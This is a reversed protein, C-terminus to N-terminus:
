PKKEEPKRTKKKSLHARLLKVAKAEFQERKGPDGATLLLRRLRRSIHVYGPKWKLRDIEESQPRCLEGVAAGCSCPVIADAPFLFGALVNKM